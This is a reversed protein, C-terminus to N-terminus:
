VGEIGLLASDVISTLKDLQSITNGYDRYKAREAFGAVNADVSHKYLM